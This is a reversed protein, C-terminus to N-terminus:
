ITGISLALDIDLKECKYLVSKCMQKNIEEAIRPTFYKRISDNVKSFLREIIFSQYRNISKHKWEMFSKNLEEKQMRLDLAEVVNSMSSSSAVAKHIIANISEVRSTSQMGATFIRNIFSKAWSQQTSYIPNSLYKHASPYKELLSKFQHEFDEISLSNTSELLGSYIRDTNILPQVFMTPDEKQQELLFRLLHSADSGVVQKERKIKQIANSLDQTLFLQDPFLPRLPNRITHADCHGYVIARKIENMISEDFKRFAMAFRTNDANITYNHELHAYTIHVFNNAYLNSLNVHWKCDTKKSGKNRQQGIPKTKNPKYKGANECIYTRRKVRDNLATTDSKHYEVRYRNVVFGKQRGYEKLYHEAISWSNFRAGVSLEIPQSISHNTLDQGEMELGLFPTDIEGSSELNTSGQNVKISKDEMIEDEVPEYEVTEGIEVSEVAKGKVREAEAHEEKYKDEVPDIAESGVHTSEIRKGKAFKGKMPKNEVLEDNGIIDLLFKEQLMSQRKIKV